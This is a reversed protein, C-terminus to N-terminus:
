FHNNKACATEQTPFPQEGRRQLLNYMFGHGRDLPIQFFNESNQFKSFFKLGLGSGTRKEKVNGAGAPLSFPFFGNREPFNEGEGPRLFPHARHFFM